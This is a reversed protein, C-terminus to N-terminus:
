RRLYVDALVPWGRAFRLIMGRVLSLTGGGEVWPNQEWTVSRLAVVNKRTKGLWDLEQVLGAVGTASLLKRTAESATGGAMLCLIGTKGKQQENADWVAGIPLNTGYALPRNRQKWFRRDFQLLV